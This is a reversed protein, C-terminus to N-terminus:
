DKAFFVEFSILLTLNRLQEGLLLALWVFNLVVVQVTVATNFKTNGQDSDRCDILARPSVDCEDDGVTLM